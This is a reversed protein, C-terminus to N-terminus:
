RPKRAVCLKIHINDPQGANDSNAIGCAMYMLWGQPVEVVNAEGIWVLKGAFPAVNNNPYAILRMNTYSGNSQRDATVIGYLSVDGLLTKRLATWYAKSLDQTIFIQTDSNAAGSPGNLGTVKEVASFIGAVPDYHSHYIRIQSGCATGADDSRNSEFYLDAGASISGVVFANDDECISNTPMPVSASWTNGQKSSYYIDGLVLPTVQWRTFVMLDETVNTSASAEAFNPDNSNVPHYVVNWGSKTLDARFIRFDNVTMGPRVPGNYVHTSGGSNIFIWDDQRSYTFYLSKGSSAIAASDTWGGDVNVPEGLQRIDQWGENLTVGLVPVGRPANWANIVTTVSNNPPTVSSKKCSILLLNISVLTLMVVFKKFQFINSNTHDM